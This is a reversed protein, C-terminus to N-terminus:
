IARFPPNTHHLLDKKLSSQDHDENKEEESSWSWIHLLNNPLHDQDHDDDEEKVSPPVVSNSSSSSSSLLPERWMQLSLLRGKDEKCWLICLFM